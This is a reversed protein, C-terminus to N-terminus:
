PTRTPDLNSVVARRVADLVVEPKGDKHVFWKAGATLAAVRLGGHSSIAVVPVPLASLTSVLQLGSEADPLRLDVIAVDPRLEIALRLTDAPNGSAAPVEFGGAATLLRTLAARVRRDDDGILVRVVRGAADASESTSM